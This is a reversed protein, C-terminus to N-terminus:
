SQPARVARGSGRAFRMAVMAPALIVVLLVGFPYIRWLPAPTLFGEHPVNALNALAMALSFIVAPMQRGAVSLLWGAALSGAILPLSSLLLDGSEHALLRWFGANALDDARWNALYMWMETASLHILWFSRRVLLLGIGVGVLLALWPRWVRRAVLGLLGALARWGSERAELLDGWVVAREEKPLLLSVREALQWCAGTM